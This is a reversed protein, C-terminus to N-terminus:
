GPLASKRKSICQMPRLDEQEIVIPGPNEEANNSISVIYHQLYTTYNEIIHIPANTFVNKLTMILAYFSVRINLSIMRAGSIQMMNSPLPRYVAPPAIPFCKAYETKKPHLISTFLGM